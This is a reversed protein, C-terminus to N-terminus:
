GVNKLKQQWPEGKARAGPGRSNLARLRKAIEVERATYPQKPVGGRLLRGALGVSGVRLRSETYEAILKWQALKTVSHPVMVRALVDIDVLRIVRLFWADKHKAPDREQYTYGAGRVGIQKPVDLASDLTEKDTTSMQVAAGLSYPRHPRDPRHSISVGVSGEGDLLGALWAIKLEM